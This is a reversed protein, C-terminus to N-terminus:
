AEMDHEVNSLRLLEPDYKVVGILEGPMGPYERWEDVMSWLPGGDPGRGTCVMNFDSIRRTTAHGMVKFTIPHLRNVTVYRGRHSVVRYRWHPSTRSRLDIGPTVHM